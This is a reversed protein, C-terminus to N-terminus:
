HDRGWFRNAIFCLIPRLQAYMEHRYRVISLTFVAFCIRFVQWILRGFYDSNCLPLYFLDLHMFLASDLTNISLQKNL